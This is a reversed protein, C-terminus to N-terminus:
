RASLKYVVFSPEPPNGGTKVLMEMEPFTRGEDFLEKKQEPRLALYNGRLCLHTAGHKKGYAAVEARSAVPLPLWQRGAHFAVEMNTSMVVADEPTNKNLWAAADFVEAHSRSRVQFHKLATLGLYGALLALAAGQLVRRALSGAPVAPFDTTEIWTFIHDVGCAAWFIIPLLLGYLFRETVFFVLMSALSLVILFNFVEAAFRTRSWPAAFLGLFALLLLARGCVWPRLLTNYANRINAKVDGLVRARYEGALLQLIGRDFERAYYKVEGKENLGWTDRQYQVADRDVLARTTTYSTTSKTTLAWRGTQFYLYIVFPLALLLFAGLFAAIRLAGGRATTPRYWLLILLLYALGLGIYITGEARTLYALALSAGALAYTGMNQRISARYVLFFGTFLCLLYLPESLTEAFLIGTTFAPLIATLFGAILAIQKGYIDRGLFYVPIPLLSGFVVYAVRTVAEWDRVAYNLLGLSIPFLPHFHIEPRNDYYTYGVGSFLNKALWIYCSEDGFAVHTPIACIIRAVAAVGVLLLLLFVPGIWREKERPVATSAESRRRALVSM